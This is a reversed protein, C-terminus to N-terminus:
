VHWRGTNLLEDYSRKLRHAHKVLDLTLQHAGAVCAEPGVIERLGVMLVNVGTLRNCHDDLEAAFALPTVPYPPEALVAAHVARWRDRSMLALLDSIITEDVGHQQLKQILSALSPEDEDAM